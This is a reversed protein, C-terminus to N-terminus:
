ATIRIITPRMFEDAGLACAHREVGRPYDIPTTSTQYVFIGNNGSVITNWTVTNDPPRFDTATFTKSIQDIPGYTSPVAYSTAIVPSGSRSGVSQAALRTCPALGIVLAATLGIRRHLHIGAVTNM